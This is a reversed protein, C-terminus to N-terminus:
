YQFLHRFPYFCFIIRCLWRHLRQVQPQWLLMERKLFCLHASCFSISSISSITESFSGSSAAFSSGCASTVASSSASSSYAVFQQVWNPYCYKCTCFNFIQATSEILFQFNFVSLSTLPTGGCDIWSFLKFFFICWNGSFTQHMKTKNPQKTVVGDFNSKVCVKKNCFLQQLFNFVITNNDTIESSLFM